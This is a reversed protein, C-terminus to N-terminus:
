EAAAALTPVLSRQVANIDGQLVLATPPLVSNDDQDWLELAATWAAQLDPANRLSERLKTWTFGPSEADLRLDVHGSALALSGGLTVASEPAWLKGAEIKASGDAIRWRGAFQAAGSVGFFGYGQAVGALLWPERLKAVTGGRPQLDRAEVVWEGRVAQRAGGAAALPWKLEGHSTLRGRLQSALGLGALLEDSSGAFELSCEAASRMCRGGGRWYEGRAHVSLSEITLNGSEPQLRAELTMPGLSGARLDAIRLQWARQQALLAASLSGDTDAAPLRLRQLEVNVRSSRAAIEVRGALRRGALQWRLSEADCRGSARLAGLSQGGLRADTLRLDLTVPLACTDLSAAALELSPLQGEIRWQSRAPLRLVGGGLRVAAREVRLGTTSDTLRAVFRVRQRNADSTRGLVSYAHAATADSAV